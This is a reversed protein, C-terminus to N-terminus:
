PAFIAILTAPDVTTSSLLNNKGLLEASTVVETDIELPVRVTSKFVADTNVTASVSFIVVSVRLLTCLAPLVLENTNTSVASPVALLTIQGALKMQGEPVAGVIVDVLSLFSTKTKKVTSPPVVQCDNM